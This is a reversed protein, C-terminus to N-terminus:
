RVNGDHKLLDSYIPGSPTLISKKLCIYEIKQTGYDESQHESILQILRQKERVSKVRAITLHPTFREKQFGLSALKAQLEEGVRTLSGSQDEVGVWVVNVRGGGPFYGLGRLRIVFTEFSISRIAEKVQEIKSQDIEGLFKLTLHLNEPEVMKMVAARSSELMGQTLRIKEVISPENVDVAVFARILNKSM